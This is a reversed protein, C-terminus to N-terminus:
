FFLDNSILYLLSLPENLIFSIRPDLGVPLHTVGPMGNKLKLRVRLPFPIAIPWDTTSPRACLRAHFVKMLQIVM